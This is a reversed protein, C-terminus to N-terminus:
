ANDSSSSASSPRRSARAETVFEELVHEYRGVVISLRGRKQCCVLTARPVADSLCQEHAIPVSRDQGGRWITIPYRIADLAFGWDRVFGLDDDLWGGLGNQVAGHCSDAM